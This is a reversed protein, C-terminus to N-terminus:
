RLDPLNREAGALLELALELEEDEDVPVSRTQWRIRYVEEPRLGTLLESEVTSPDPPPSWRRPRGAFAVPDIEPQADEPGPIVMSTVLDPALWHDVMTQLARWLDVPPREVFTEHDTFGEIELM